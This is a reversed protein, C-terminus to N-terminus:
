PQSSRPQQEPPPVAAAAAHNRALMAPTQGDPAKGPGIRQQGEAVVPDAGRVAVIAVAISGIVVTALGGLALWMTGVRWWPLQPNPQLRQMAHTTKPVSNM